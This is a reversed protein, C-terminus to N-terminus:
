TATVVEIATAAPQGKNDYTNFRVAQGKDLVRLGAERVKTAHVFVDDGMNTDPIIFGYGKDPSYWKVIGTHKTVLEDSM